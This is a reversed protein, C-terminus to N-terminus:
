LQGELPAVWDVFLFAFTNGLFGRRSRSNTFALIPRVGFSGRRGSKQDSGGSAGWVLPQIGIISCLYQYPQVVILM